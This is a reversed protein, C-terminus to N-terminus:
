KDTSGARICELIVAHPRALYAHLLPPEKEGNAYRAPRPNKRQVSSFGAQHLASELSEFSWYVATVTAQFDSYFLDLKIPTSEDHAPQQTLSFGYPAYYEPDPDFDPHIPLTILKGGPKLVKAMNSCMDGLSKKDTAYPMVYVSLVLDFQCDLTRDLQSVYDIGLPTERERERAHALMGEAVDFGVVRAAGLRKLIRSYTGDGCGFDLVSRGEVCGLTELVSPTEIEKRFPWKAMDEYLGPLEDFQSGTSQTM